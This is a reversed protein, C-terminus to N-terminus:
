AIRSYDTVLSSDGIVSGQTVIANAGIQVNRGLICNRVVSNAGVKCGPWLIAGEVVASPGVHVDHGIVSNKGIKAGADIRAKPGIFCPSTLEANPDVLAGDVVPLSGSGIGEFPYAKCRGSMIDRHVQIYKEPTGIDIWYGNDIYAAVRERDKILSPFYKREISWKTKEPIRAFADTELVYIGANITNCSIQDPTPKEVFRRVNNESDTEVLGYAEPNEVATLVITAKASRSNHVDVVARLDTNTLVDGNFVMVTGCVGQAAYRIAGGTGLPVRGM